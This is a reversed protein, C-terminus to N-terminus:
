KWHFNCRGQPFSKLDFGPKLWPNFPKGERNRLSINLLINRNQSNIGHSVCVVGWYKFFEISNKFNTGHYFKLEKQDGTM